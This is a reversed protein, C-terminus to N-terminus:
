KKRGDAEPHGGSDAGKGTTSGTPAARTDPAPNQPHYAKPTNPETRETGLTSDWGANSPTNPSPQASATGTFLVLAAAIDSIRRMADEEFQASPDGRLSIPEVVNFTHSTPYLGLIRPMAASSANLRSAQFCRFEYPRV